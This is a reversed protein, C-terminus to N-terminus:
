AVLEGTAQQVIDYSLQKMDKHGIGPNSSRNPM